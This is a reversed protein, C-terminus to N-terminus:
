LKFQDDLKIDFGFNSVHDYAMTAGFGGLFQPEMWAYPSYNPLNDNTTGLTEEHVLNVLDHGHQILKSYLLPGFWTGTLDYDMHSKPFEATHADVFKILGNPASWGTPYATGGNNLNLVNLGTGYGVGPPENIFFYYIDGHGTEEFSTSIYGDSYEIWSRGEIGEPNTGPPNQVILKATANQSGRCLNVKNLNSTYSWDLGSYNNNHDFTVIVSALRDSYTRSNPNPEESYTRGLAIQFLGGNFGGSGQFYVDSPVNPLPEIIQEARNEDPSIEPNFDTQSNYGFDPTDQADINFVTNFPQYGYGAPPLPTEFSQGIVWDGAVGWCVFWHPMREYCSSNPVYDSM